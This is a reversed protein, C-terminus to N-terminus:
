VNVRGDCQRIIWGLGDGDGDGDGDDVFLRM